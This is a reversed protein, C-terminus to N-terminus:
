VPTKTGRERGCQCHVGGSEGNIQNAAQRPHASAAAGGVEAHREQPEDQERGAGVHAPEPGNVLGKLSVAGCNFGGQQRM